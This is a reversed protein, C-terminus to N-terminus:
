AKMGFFSLVNSLKISNQHEQLFTYERCSVVNSAAPCRVSAKLQTKAEKKPSKASKPM